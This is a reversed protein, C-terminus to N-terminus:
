LKVAMKRTLIDPGGGAAFPVIIRVPRNPYDGAQGRATLPLGLSAIAVGLAGRHFQRRTTM